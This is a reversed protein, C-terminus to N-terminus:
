VANAAAKAEALEKVFEENDTLIKRLGGSATRIISVFDEISKVNELQELTTDLILAFQQEETLKAM